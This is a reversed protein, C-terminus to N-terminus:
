KELLPTEGECGGTSVEIGKSLLFKVIDLKGNMAASHIPMVNETTKAKIDAGQKVLVSAVAETPAFHLLTQDHSYRAKILSPNKKLLAKVKNVDGKEVATCIDEKDDARGPLAVMVIFSLCLFLALIKKM